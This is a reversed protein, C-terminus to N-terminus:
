FNKECHTHKKTVILDNRHPIETIKRWSEECPCLCQLPISFLVRGYYRNHFLSDSSFGAEIALCAFIQLNLRCQGGFAKSKKGVSSSYYYPGGALYLGWPSFSNFEKITWGLEMDGGTLAKRYRIYRLFYGETYDDAEFHTKKDKGVPFYGNARFDWCQGLFEVGLGVQHFNHQRQHLWDYYVNLGLIKDISPAQYRAGIGVSCGKQGSNLIHGKADVYPFLSSYKNCNDLLIFLGATTYGRDFGIGRGATYDVYPKLSNAAQLSFFCFTLLLSFILKM